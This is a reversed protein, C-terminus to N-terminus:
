DAPAKPSKGGPTRVFLQSRGRKGICVILDMKKLLYVIQGALRKGGTIRSALDGSTFEEPLDEPLFDLYDEPGRFLKKEMLLVMSRDRLSVGKRRWSGQGDDVRVEEEHILLTELSFRPHSLLGPIYLLQAAAHRHTAKKPSKRRSRLTRGDAEYVLLTKEAALPHVLRVPGSELLFALKKRVSGFNGTQIEVVGDPNYVDAYYGGLPYERVGGNATYLEKLQRHLTTENLEGIGSSEKEM